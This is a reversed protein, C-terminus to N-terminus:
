YGGGVWNKGKAAALNLADLIALDKFVLHTTGKKFLRITFFRSEFETAYNIEGRNIKMCHDEIATATSLISNYDIGQIFCIAKDLDEFLDRQRYDVGWSWENRIGYPYIIKKNLKWSKNTKWGETHTSNKKHLKTVRDFAEVICREMIADRNGAFKSIVTYINAESFALKSQAAVEMEFDRQFGSTTIKGLQTKQFLYRWFAEKLQTHMEELKRYDKGEVHFTTPKTYFAIENHIRDREVLLQAARQYQAVLSKVGEKVALPNANYETSGLEQDREFFSDSFDTTKEVAPKTMWVIAVNVDTAREADAFASGIVEFRGHQKILTTLLTRENTYPNLLTEANLLCILNGEPALVSWAKLLHSDGDDFPPNMVILDFTYPDSYALFDSDIVTYEKGVLTARLDPELEICKINSKSIQFNEVLYDVIDGKGASPELIRRGPLVRTRYPWRHSGAEIEEVLPAVMREILPAPTPYFTSNYM